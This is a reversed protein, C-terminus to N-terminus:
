LFFWRTLYKYTYYQWDQSVINLLLSLTTCIQVYGVVRLARLTSSDVSSRGAAYVIIQRETKTILNYYPM